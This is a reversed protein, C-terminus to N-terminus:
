TRKEALTNLKIERMLAELKEEFKTIEIQFFEGYERAYQDFKNNIFENVGNDKHYTNNQPVLNAKTVRFSNVLTGGESGIVHIGKRRSQTNNVRRNYLTSIDGQSADESAPASQM